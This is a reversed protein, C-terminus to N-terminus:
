KAILPIIARASLEDLADVIHASYHNEIMETSTDHYAAILRAPLGSRRHRIISSHRLWYPTAEAPLRAQDMVLKFPRSLENATKWPGRRTEGLRNTHNTALVM